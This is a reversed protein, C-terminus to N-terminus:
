VIDTYDRSKFKWRCVEATKEAHGKMEIEMLLKWLRDVTDSSDLPLHKLVDGIIQESRSVSELRGLTSLALEWGQKVVIHDGVEAELTGRDGLHTAYAILTKDKIGDSKSPSPSHGLAILDEEDLEDMSILSQPESQPLWGAIAGLEAVASAIPASWTRLFAVVSEHDGEFASALAVEVADSTNVQLDKDQFTATSFSKRLKLVYAESSDRGNILSQATWPRDSKKESKSADWWVALGITAEVWDQSLDCISKSEGSLVGYIESLYQYVTWPVASQAMQATQSYTGASHGKGKQYDPGEAFKRLDTLAQAARLRFFTWNEGRVDWDNRNGPCQALVDVAAAVVREVAALASGAYGHGGHRSDEDGTTNAHRWGANRLIQIVPAIRGRLLSNFIAHWFNDSNSPSPKHSYLDEIQTPYPDHYENLWELLAQPLPKMRNQREDFQPHQVRLVLNAIFNAKSFASEQPGPGIRVAYDNFDQSRTQKQHSSWLKSLHAPTTSLAETLRHDNEIGYLHSVLADTNLILGDPESLGSSGLQSILDKAITGYMLEQPTHMTRSRRLSHTHDQISRGLDSRQTAGFFSHRGPEEQEEMDADDSYNDRSGPRRDEQEYEQGIEQDVDEMDEEDGEADEDEEDDSYEPMSYGRKPSPKHRDDYNSDQFASRQPTYEESIVSEGFRLPSGQSLRSQDFSLPKM